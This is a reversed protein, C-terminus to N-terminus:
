VLEEQPQELPEKRNGFWTQPDRPRRRPGARRTKLCRSCKPKSISPFPKTVPGFTFFRARVGTLARGAAFCRAARFGASLSWSTRLRFISRNATCRPKRSSLATRSARRLRTTRPSSGFGNANASRVGRSTALPVWSVSSSRPSTGRTCCSSGWARWCASSCGTWWRTQSRM